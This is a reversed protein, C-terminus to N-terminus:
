RGQLQEMLVEWGSKETTNASPTAGAAGTKINARKEIINRKEENKSQTKLVNVIKSFNSYIFDMELAKKYDTAGSGNSLINKTFSGSDIMKQRSKKFSIPVKINGITDLSELASLANEKEEKARQLARVKYGDIKDQRSKVLKEKIDMGRLMLETRSLSGVYDELEELAEQTQPVRSKLDEMYLTVPDISKYDVSSIELYDLFDGNNQAIDIADRLSDPLSSLLSEKENLSSELKKSKEKLEKYETAISDMSKGNEGFKTLLDSYDTDSSVTDDDFDIEIVEDQTEEVETQVIQEDEETTTTETDGFDETSVEEEEESSVGTNTDEEHTDEETTTEVVQEESPNGAMSMLAEEALERVSKNNEM